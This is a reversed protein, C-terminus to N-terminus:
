FVREEFKTWIQAIGEAVKKADIVATVLNKMSIDM